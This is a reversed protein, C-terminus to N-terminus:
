RKNGTKRFLLYDAHRRRLSRATKWRGSMRKGKRTVVMWEFPEGCVDIAWLPMWQPAHNHIFGQCKVILVDNTVRWAEACGARFIIQLQKETSGATSFRAAEASHVDPHFPPDYVVAGVSADPFPLARFDAVASKARQPNLDLGIVRRSSGQWFQGNGFTVDVVPGTTGGLRLLREVAEAPSIEVVADWGDVVVKSEPVADFRM